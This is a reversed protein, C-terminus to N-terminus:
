PQQNSTPVARGRADKSGGIVDSRLKWLEREGEGEETIVDRNGDVDEETETGPETVKQRRGDRMGQEGETGWRRALAVDQRCLYHRTRFTLAQDEVIKRQTYINIHAHTHTNILNCMVACDPGPMRTM